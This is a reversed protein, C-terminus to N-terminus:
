SLPGTHIGLMQYILEPRGDGNIDYAKANDPLGGFNYSFKEITPLSDKNSQTELHYINTSYYVADMLGDGDFDGVAYAGVLTDPFEYVLNFASDGNFEYIREKGQSPTTYDKFVGYIEKRRNNNADVIALEYPAFAVPVETWFRYMNAFTTTDITSLDITLDAAPTLGSSAEATTKYTLRPPFAQRIQLTWPATEQIKVNRSQILNKQPQASASTFCITVCAILICSM